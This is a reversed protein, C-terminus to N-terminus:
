NVSSYRSVALGLPECGNPQRGSLKRRGGTYPPFGGGGLYVNAYSGSFQHAQYNYGFMDYGTPLVQDHLYHGASYM